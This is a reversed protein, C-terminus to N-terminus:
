TNDPLGTPNEAHAATLWALTGFPHWLTGTPVRQGGGVVGDNKEELPHWSKSTRHGVVFSYLQVCQFKAFEGNRGRFKPPLKPPAPDDSPAPAPQYLIFTRNMPLDDTSRLSAQRASETRPSGTVMQLFSPLLSGPCPSCSPVRNRTGSESRAIVVPRSYGRDTQVSCWPVSRRPTSKSNPSPRTPPLM